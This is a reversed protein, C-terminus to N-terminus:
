RRCAALSDPCSAYARTAIEVIPPFSGLLRACDNTCDQPPGIREGAEGFLNLIDGPQKVAFQFGELGVSFRARVYVPCNLPDYPESDCHPFGYVDVEFCFIREGTATTAGTVQTVGERIHPLSWTTVWGTDGVYTPVIDYAVLSGEPLGTTGCVRMLSGRTTGDRREFSALRLEVPIRPDAPAPEEPAIEPEVPVIEPLPQSPPLMELSPEPATIAEVVPGSTVADIAGFRAILLGLFVGVLAIIFFKVTGRQRQHDSVAM